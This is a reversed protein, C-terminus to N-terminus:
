MSWAQAAAIQVLVPARFGAALGAPEGRRARRRDGPVLRAADNGRDAGRDVRRQRLDALADHHMM